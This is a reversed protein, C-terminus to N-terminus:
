RVSKGRSPCVSQGRWDAQPAIHRFDDAKLKGTPVSKLANGSITETEIM